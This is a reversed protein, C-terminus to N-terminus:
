YLLKSVNFPKKKTTISDESLGRIYPHAIVEVLKTKTTSANNFNGPNNAKAKSSLPGSHSALNPNSGKRNPFVLHEINATYGPDNRM